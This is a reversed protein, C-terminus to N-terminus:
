PLARVLLVVGVGVLVFSAAVALVAAGFLVWRALGFLVRLLQLPLAVLRM